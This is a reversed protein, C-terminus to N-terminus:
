AAAQAAPELRRAREQIILRQIGLSVALYLVATSTGIDAKGHGPAILYDYGLHAALAVVWLVATLWNGQSWAQSQDTWVRVTSARAAGFGAALVLSGALALATKTVDHNTKLYTAVEVVGIVALILVIRWGSGSVRRARLQRAILLALVVVGIAIDILV